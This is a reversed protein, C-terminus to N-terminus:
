KTYKMKKIKEYSVIGFLGIIAIVAVLIIANASGTQPIKETNAGSTNAANNANKKESTIKQVNNTDNNTQNAQNQAANNTQNNANSTNNSTNNAKNEAKNEEKNETKNETGIVINNWQEKGTQNKNTDKETDNNKEDQNDKNDVAAQNEKNTDETTKDTDQTQTENKNEDTDTKESNDTGSMKLVLGGTKLDKKADNYKVYTNAIYGSVEDTDWVISYNKGEECKSIDFTLKVIVKDGKLETNKKNAVASFSIGKQKKYEREGETEVNPRYAFTYSNNLNETSEVKKLVLANDYVLVGKIGDVGTTNIHVDVVLTNNSNSSIQLYLSDENEAAYANNTLVMTFFLTLLLLVSIIRRKQKM